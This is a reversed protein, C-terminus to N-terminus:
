TVVLEFQMQSLLKGEAKMEVVIPHYVDLVPETKWLEFIQPSFIYLKRSTSCLFLSM